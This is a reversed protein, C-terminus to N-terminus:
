DSSLLKGLLELIPRLDKRLEPFKEYCAALQVNLTSLDNVIFQMLGPTYKDPFKQSDLLLQLHETVPKVRVEVDPYCVYLATLRGRLEEAEEAETTM